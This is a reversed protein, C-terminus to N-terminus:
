LILMKFECDWNRVNRVNYDCIEVWRSSLVSSLCRRCVCRACSPLCVCVLALAVVALWGHRRDGVGM